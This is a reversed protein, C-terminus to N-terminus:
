VRAKGHLGGNFLKFAVKLGVVFGLVILVETINDSIAGTISTVIDTGSGTPFVGTGLSWM